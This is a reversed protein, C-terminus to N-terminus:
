ENDWPVSESSGDRLSFEVPCPPLSSIFRRGYSKRLLRSDLVTIRGKDSHTRILRGAGQKFRLIAEPLTHEMFANGGRAAISELRAETLPHSPMAFPLRTIIVHELAEGPVDVGTWFSDLGFLVSDIDEQFAKLLTHRQGDVGQVFLRIGADDFRPALVEATRRMLAANTFLVLARGHSREVSSMIWDPLEEAYGDRDPEPIDRALSLTMQRRHDFPSDLITERANHAGIRSRFYDLSGDVSLTASTMVVSTGDRFMREHLYDGVDSPSACLTVQRQPGLGVWYTWSPESQDLFLEVGSLVELLAGRAATLEQRKFLDDLDEELSEVHKILPELSEPLQNAVIGRTRIRVDANHHERTMSRASSEIADFLAEIGSVAADCLPVHKRRGALLGKKTRSSYLKQVGQLAKRRSLHLGTGAAAVGEITHAEDFIVFDNPFLYYDLGENMGWLSFFLAHNVILLNAERARQKARQFFCSPSCTSSGCVGTESCVAEWVDARPTFGLGELDGDPSHSAWASIRELEALGEPDFLTKGSERATHLRTTCLYNRRGKLAAVQFQAGLIARAIPIDKQILQEQLNKTHTSVIAKRGEAMCDLLAPILYALTKGVGTPAEVILHERSALADAVAIAMASQQARHDFGARRALPGDPSFIGATDELLTLM